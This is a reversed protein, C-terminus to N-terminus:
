NSIPIKSDYDYIKRNQITYIELPEGLVARDLEDKNSFNFNSLSNSTIATLFRNMGNEAAERVEKPVDSNLTDQSYIYQTYFIAIIFILCLSKFRVKIISM